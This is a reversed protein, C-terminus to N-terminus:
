RREHGSIPVHLLHPVGSALAAGVAEEVDDASDLRSAAVGMSQALAVFDIGPDGIDMGVYNGTRAAAGGMRDLGLKLIRYERNDVIVAVASIGYRAATWLAQPAYMASGDGVM